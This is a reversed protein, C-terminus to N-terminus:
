LASSEAPRRKSAQQLRKARASVRGYAPTDLKMRMAEILCDAGSVPPRVRLADQRARLATLKAEINVCRAIAHEHRCEATIVNPDRDPDSSRATALKLDRRVVARDAIAAALETRLQAREAKIRVDVPSPSCQDKSVWWSAIRRILAVRPNERHRERCLGTM